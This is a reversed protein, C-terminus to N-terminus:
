SLGAKFKGPISYPPFQIKNKFVSCLVLTMVAKNACQGKPKEVLFAIKEVGSM